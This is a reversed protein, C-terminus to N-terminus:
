GDDHRYLNTQKEQPSTENSELFRPNDSELDKQIRFSLSRPTEERRRSLHKVLRKTKRSVYNSKAVLDKISEQLPQNRARLLRRVGRKQPPSSADLSERALVNIRIDELPTTRLTPYRYVTLSNLTDRWRISTAQPHVLGLKLAHKIQTQSARRQTGDGGFEVPGAPVNFKIAQRIFPLTPANCQLAGFRAYDREISNRCLPNNKAGSAYLDSITQRPRVTGDQEVLRECFVGYHSYFEKTENRVLGLSKLAYQYRRVQNPTWYGVLDDGCVHYTKTTAGTKSAAYLNVLNLIVWTIGLGLHISNTTEKGNYRKPGLIQVGCSTVWMPEKLAKCLGRWTRQALQHSIHETAKSLDASYIKAHTGGPHLKLYSNYLANRTCKLDKLVKIHRAMINKAAQIEWSQSLTVVRVKNGKEPVAVPKIGPPEPNILTLNIAMTNLVELTPEEEWLPHKGKGLYYMVCRDAHTEFRSRSGTTIAKTYVPDNVTFCNTAHRRVTDRIWKTRMNAPIKEFEKSTKIWRFIEEPITEPITKWVDPLPGTPPEKTFRDKLPRTFSREVTYPRMSTLTGMTPNPNDRNFFRLYAWWVHLAMNVGGCREPLEYCANTSTTSQISTTLKDRHREKLLGELFKDLEELEELSQDPKKQFWIPTISNLAKERQKQSVPWRVARAITSAM